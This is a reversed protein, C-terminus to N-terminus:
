KCGEKARLLNEFFKYSRLNEHFSFRTEVIKRANASIEKLKNPDKSLTEFINKLENANSIVFGTRGNVIVDGMNAAVFDSVVPVCGIAMAELISLSFGEHSESLLVYINALEYNKPVDSYPVYGLCKLRVTNIGEYSYPLSDLGTILIEQEPFYSQVTKLTKWFNHKYTKKGNILIKIDQYKKESRNFMETDIMPPLFILKKVDALTNTLLSKWIKLDKEVWLGIFNAHLHSLWYCTLYIKDDWRTDFYKARVMLKEWYGNIQNPNSLIEREFRPYISKLRSIALSLEHPWYEIHLFSTYKEILPLFYPITDIQVVYINRFDIDSLIEILHNVLEFNGQRINIADTEPELNLESFDTVLLTKIGKKNLYRWLQYIYSAVGGAAYIGIICLDYNNKVNILQIKKSM